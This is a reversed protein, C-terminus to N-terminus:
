SISCDSSRESKERQFMRERERERKRRELEEMEKKIRIVREIEKQKREEEKQKREEEERMKREKEKQKREEEKQKREEEERRKREEEEKRFRAADEYLENSYCSGGNQEVMRDIKELLETVQERNRLDKNNFTHYRGGSQEVLRSLSRNQKILEEVRVGELQDGHTFLIVPNSNMEEGFMMELRQVVQEEQETFRTNVPQVYLFAHAGPSSLYISRRIEVALDEPSMATDFLGPTDVVCVSRGGVVAQGTECQATVSSPTLQSRFKKERLITNGAASKGVGSKGLLVIRRQLPDKEPDPPVTRHLRIEPAMSLPAQKIKEMLRRVQDPNQTRNNFVHYRNGYRQIVRKLDETDEIFEEISLGESELEDGRTFLIWTNQLLWDPLSQEILEVAQKEEPTFRDAKMVLLFVTPVSPDLQLLPQCKEMIDENSREPDFLGPTDYVDHTVGDFVVREKQVGKTTANSSRKSEFAKKGLITNGTASKGVGTKGILIMNFTKKEAQDYFKIWATKLSCKIILPTNQMQELLREVQLHKKIKNNFVHYRGKFRQIVRKIEEEDDIFTEITLNESELEDGRTFLIWTNQLLCDGLLTEIDLIASKDEQTLREPRLVLLFLTPVTQHDLLLLLSQYEKIVDENSVATSNDFRQIVRKLHNTRNIFEEVSQGERKLTDGGTFLIWTNQFHRLGLIKQAEETSSQDEPTFRSVPIVLLFVTPDSDDLPLLSQCKKMVDENSMETNCFGPTDYVDISVGDVIANEMQINQTTSRSSKKSIFTERGLITNGTASKGAGSKILIGAVM